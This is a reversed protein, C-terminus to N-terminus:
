ELSSIRETETKANIQQSYKTPASEIVEKRSAVPQSAYNSCGFAVFESLRSSPWVQCNNGAVIIVWINYFFIAIYKLNFYSKLSVNIQIFLIYDEKKFFHVNL